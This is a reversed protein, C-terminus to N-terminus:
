KLPRPHTDAPAKWLSLPLAGPGRGEFFRQVKLILCRLYLSEPRPLLALPEQGFPKISICDGTFCTPFIMQRLSSTAINM